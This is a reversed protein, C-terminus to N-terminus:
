EPMFSDPVLSSSKAADMSDLTLEEATNMQMSGPAVEEAADM